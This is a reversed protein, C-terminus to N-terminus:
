GACAPKAQTSATELRGQNQNEGGTIKNWMIMRRQM